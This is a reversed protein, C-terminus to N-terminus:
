AGGDQQSPDSVGVPVTSNARAPDLAPGRPMLDVVGGPVSVPTVGGYGLVGLVEGSPVPFIAGTDTVLYTADSSQGPHPQRRIIAGKGPSMLVTGNGVPGSGPRQGPPQPEVSVRVADSAGSTYAACVVQNDTVLFNDLTPVENPFGDPVVARASTHSIEAPQIQIAGPPRDPYAARTAPDVLLLLAATPTVPALGDSLVAWYQDHLGGESGVKLVQGVRLVRGPMQYATVTGRNPLAPAVLDPGPPVSNLWTDAVTLLKANQYNLVPLATAPDRVQLRTDNWVLYITPPGSPQAIQVLLAKTNDVRTGAGTFGVSVSLPPATAGNAGSCITWPGNIMGGADPLADPLNPLGRPAGRPGGALSKRSFLKVTVNDSNLILRASTYNLVPHLAGDNPDYVFRTGTEKEVVLVGQDQWGQKGGPKLLGVIGFGAVVLVAIMVSVFTAIGIRRLPPEPADGDGQLLAAQVRHLVFRYAQAQDRRSQVAGGDPGTDGM